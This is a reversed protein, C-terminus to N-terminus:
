NGKCYQVLEYGDNDMGFNDKIKMRLTRGESTKDSIARYMYRWAKLNRRDYAARTGADPDDKEHRDNGDITDGLKCLKLYPAMDYWFATFSTQRGDWNPGKDVKMGLDSGNFRKVMDNEEDSDM